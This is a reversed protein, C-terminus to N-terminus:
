QGDQKRRDAKARLELLLKRHPSRVVRAPITAYGLARCAAIRHNGDLVRLKGTFVHEQLVVTDPTAGSKLVAMYADVKEPRGPTKVPIHSLEVNEVALNQVDYAMLSEKDRCVLGGLGVGCRSRLDYRRVGVAVYASGHCRYCRACIDAANCDDLASPRSTILISGRNQRPLVM